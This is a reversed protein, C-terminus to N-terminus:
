RIRYNWIGRQIGQSQRKHGSLNGCTWGMVPFFSDIGDECQRRRPSPFDDDDGAIKDDNEERAGRPSLLHDLIVRTADIIIEPARNRKVHMGMNTPVRGVIAVLIDINDAYKETCEIELFSLAFFFFPWCLRRRRM